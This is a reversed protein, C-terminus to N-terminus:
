LLQNWWHSVPPDRWAWYIKIIAWRHAVTRLFSPESFRQPLSRTISCHFVWLKNCVSCSWYGWTGCDLAHKGLLWEKRKFGLPRSQLCFPALFHAAALLFLIRMPPLNIPAKQLPQYSQLGIQAICINLNSSNLVAIAILVIKTIKAHFTVM